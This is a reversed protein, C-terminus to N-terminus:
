RVFHPNGAEREAGFVDNLRLNLDAESEMPLHMDECMKEYLLHWAEAFRHDPHKYGLIEAGHMLHMLYHHPLEDIVEFFMKVDEYWLHPMALRDLSMFSDAKEGWELPRKRAAAVLVTGRYARVVNKCPHYKAIGDPGRAALLLVSQMQLPLSTMWEPQVSLPM